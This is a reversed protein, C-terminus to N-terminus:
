VLWLLKLFKQAINSVTMRSLNDSNTSNVHFAGQEDYVNDKSQATFCTVVIELRLFQLIDSSSAFIQALRHYVPLLQKVGTRKYIVLMCTLRVSALHRLKELLRRVHASVPCPRTDYTSRVHRVCDLRRRVNLCLVRTVWETSLTVFIICKTFHTPM